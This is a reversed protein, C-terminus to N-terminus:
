RTFVMLNDWFYNLPSNINSFLLAMNMTLNMDLTFRRLTFENGWYEAPRLAVHGSGVQGPRAASFILHGGSALNDSLTDCLTAHASEHIHEAVEVCTILEVPQELRFPDVLNRHYFYKPWTDTDVLQDVGFANVGISRAVKVAAGTGCGVDLYSKPVGLRAFIMLLHRINYDDMESLGNMWRDYPQDDYTKRTM